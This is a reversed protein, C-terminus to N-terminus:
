GGESQLADWMSDSIAKADQFGKPKLQGSPTGQGGRGPIFPTRKADAVKKQDIARQLKTLQELRNKLITPFERDLDEGEYATYLETAFDRYGEDYGGEKLFQGIKSTLDQERKAQTFSSVTGGMAELKKYIAVLANDRASIASQFGGVIEAMDSGSIYTKGKLSELYANGPQNQGQGGAEQYRRLAAEREALSRKAESLQREFEARSQNAKTLQGQLGRHYEGFKVPDKQGGIRVMADDSVDIVSAAGAAGTSPTTSVSGSSVAGAVGSSGTTTGDIENAM